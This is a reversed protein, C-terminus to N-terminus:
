KSLKEKKTKVQGKDDVWKKTYTINALEPYKELKTIKELLQEVNHRRV